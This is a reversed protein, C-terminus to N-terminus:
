VNFACRGTVESAHIRFLISRQPVPDHDRFTQPVIERMLELGRAYADPSALEPDLLELYGKVVVSDWDFTGRIEDVEFACWPNHVLTAFKSGRSTRGYLWNDEFVYHMPQIDVRDRFSFAIRGVHHRELLARSAESSLARFEPGTHVDAFTPTTM